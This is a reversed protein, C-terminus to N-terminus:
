LCYGVDGLPRHDAEGEVVLRPDEMLMFFPM